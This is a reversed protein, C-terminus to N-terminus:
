LTAHLFRSGVGRRQHFRGKVGQCPLRSFNFGTGGGSKHILVQHTLAEMISKMDDDVPSVFCAALQNEGETKGREDADSLEPPFQRLGHPRLVDCGPPGTSHRWRPEGRRHCDRRKGRRVHRGSPPCGRRDRRTESVEAVGARETANNRDEGNNSTGRGPRTHRGRSNSGSRSWAISRPFLCILVRWRPRRTRRAPRPRPSCGVGSSRSFPFPRFQWSSLIPYTDMYVKAIKREIDRLAAENGATTAAEHASMHEKFVRVMLDVNDLPTKETM